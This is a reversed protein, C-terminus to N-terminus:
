SPAPESPALDGTQAVWGLAVPDVVIIERKACCVLNAERLLRLSRSFAEPVTSICASMQFNPHRRREISRTGDQSLQLLHKAVRSLVPRFSLDEYLHTLLRNRRALVQLLGLALGPHRLLIVIFASPDVRWTATKQTAVATVPNPGGDLAAVENFMIVPELLTIISVQGQPGYKCLQVQGALLVYAGACPEGEVFIVEDAAYQRTQGANLIGQLESPPLRRFHEVRRMMTALGGTEFM